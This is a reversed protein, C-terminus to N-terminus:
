EDICHMKVSPRSSPRDRSWWHTVRWVSTIGGPTLNETVGLLTCDPIVLTLWSTFSKIQPYFIVWPCIKWLTSTNKIDSAVMNEETYGMFWPLFTILWDMWKVSNSIDRRISHSSNVRCLFEPYHYVVGGLHLLCQCSSLSWCNALGTTFTRLHRGPMKTDKNSIISAFISGAAEWDM